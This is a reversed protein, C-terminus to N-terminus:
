NLNHCGGSLLMLDTKIPNQIGHFSIHKGMTSSAANTTEHDELTMNVRFRVWLWAKVSGGYLKLLWVIPKKLKAMRTPAKM